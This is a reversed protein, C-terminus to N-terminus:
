EGGIRHHPRSLEAEALKAAQELTGIRKGFDEISRDHRRVRESITAAHMIAGVTPVAIAVAATVVDINV